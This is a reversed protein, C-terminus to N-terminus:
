SVPLRLSYALAEMANDFPRAGTMDTIKQWHRAVFEASIEDHAAHVGPGEVMQVASFYGAGAAVIHGSSTCQESALYVVAPSVREPHAEKLAADFAQGMTMRTLAVPAVTNVEIGYKKAELKLSNMLGVIGLKAAAYNSQGYNGYLGAASTTMVIRGYQNVQMAQMASRSCWASGLLHVKVVAEFDAPSMNVLRKDRLIGANNVLVDLRGYTSVAVDILSQAGEAHSIDSRNAVAQGGAAVIEDVVQQAPSSANGHDTDHTAGSLNRGVDNVVVQAGRRALELAHARGLGAGAGTVVAVRGHFHIPFDSPTLTAANM